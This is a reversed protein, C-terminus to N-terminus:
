SAPVEIDDARYIPSRDRYFPDDNPRELYDYAISGPPSQGLKARLTEDLLFPDSNAGASGPAGQVAIYQVDFSLNPIGGHAFGERYLDSIAM